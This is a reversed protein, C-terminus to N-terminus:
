GGSVPPAAPRPPSPAGGGTGIGDPGMCPFPDLPESGLHLEVGTVRVQLTALAPDDSRVPDEGMVEMEPADWPLGSLSPADLVVALLPREGESTAGLRGGMWDAVRGGYDWGFGLFLLPGLNAALLEDLTMGVRVGEPTIWSGGEGEIRIMAPRTREPDQWTIEARDPTGPFLVTGSYCFGEGVPIEDSVVRERGLLSRLDEESTTSTLPGARVGPVLTRDAVDHPGGAGPGASGGGVEVGGGGEGGGCGAAVLGVLAAMATARAATGPTRRSGDAQLHPLGPALFLVTGFVVLVNTVLFFTAEEVPLGLPAWGLTYRESIHWIGDAIAFRDAVWLYLTPLAIAPLVTRRLRWIQPGMFFWQAALVPGAWALILGLYTGSEVTLCWAGVASLAVLPIGGALRVTAPSSPSPEARPHRALLRYFLMGGLWPQLLFFLYEEVPVYGIRGLVREPPYGWVEKWVLYNDWPTTYLFAVGMILPLAVPARRGLAPFLRPLGWGLLLLPPLIFVLHFQLYTVSPM